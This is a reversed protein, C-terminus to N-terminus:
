PHTVQTRTGTGGCSARAGRVRHEAAPSRGPSASATIAAAFAILRERDDPALPDCLRRVGQGIEAGAEAALSRGAETLAVRVARGDDPRTSREVLGRRAARDVLGTASSKELGMLDALERMGVERDRLIGLLRTQVTTLDRSTAVDTIVAQVAFALQALADVLPDGQVTTGADPPPLDPPVPM